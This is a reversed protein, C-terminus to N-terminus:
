WTSDLCVVSISKGLVCTGKYSVVLENVEDLNQMEADVEGIINNNIRYSYYTTM